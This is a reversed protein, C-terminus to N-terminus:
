REISDLLAQAGPSRDHLANRRAYRRARELDPDCAAYLRALAGLTYVEGASEARLLAREASEALLRGREEDRSRFALVAASVGVTPDGSAVAVREYRALAAVPDGLAEEYEARHVNVDVGTPDIAEARDLSARACEAKGSDIWAAAVRVHAWQVLEMVGADEAFAGAELFADVTGQVDGSAALFRGRASAVHFDDGVSAALEADALDLRGLGVWSEVLLALTSTDEPFAERARIGWAAAEEFRHRFNYLAANACYAEYNPQIDLSRAIAEEALRVDEPDRTVRARDLYAHGLEVWVPYLLPDEALRVRHYAIRDEISPVAHVSRAPPGTCAALFTLAAALGPGSRM